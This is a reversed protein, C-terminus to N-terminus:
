ARDELLLNGRVQRRVRLEERRPEEQVGSRRGGGDGIVAGPDIKLGVELAASERRACESDVASAGAGQLPRSGVMPSAFVRALRAPESRTRRWGWRRVQDSGDDPTEQPGRAKATRTGMM